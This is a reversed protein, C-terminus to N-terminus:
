IFISVTGTKMLFDNLMYNNLGNISCINAIVESFLDTCLVVAKSIALVFVINMKRNISGKSGWKGECLLKLGFQM